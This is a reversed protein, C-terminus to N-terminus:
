KKRKERMILGILIMVILAIVAIIVIPIGSSSKKESGTPNNVGSETSDNVGSETSNNMEEIPTIVTSPTINVQPNDIESKSNATTIVFPSFGPTKAQYILYQGDEGTKTIELSNWNGDSYRQLAVTSEEDPAVEEKRVRFEINCNKINNSNAVGGNGVWINVYKIVKGEPDINALSSRKNLQEVSTTVKGLTRNADFEVFDVPTDGRNFEYVFHNGSSILNQAAKAKLMVKHNLPVEEV